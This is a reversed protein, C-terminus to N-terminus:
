LFVLYLPEHSDGCAVKAKQFWTCMARCADQHTCLRENDVKLLNVHNDAGIFSEKENTPLVPSAVVLHARERVVERELHRRRLTWVIHRTHRRRLREISIGAVALRRHLIGGLSSAAQVDFHTMAAAAATCQAYAWLVHRQTAISQEVM